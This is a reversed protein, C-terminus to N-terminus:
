DNPVAVGLRVGMRILDALSAASMKRMVQARQEKVTLESTGFGAAIQKNLLGALVGAMVEQERATLSRYRRQLEVLSRRERFAAREREIGGKVAAVLERARFPKTLFEVAGDKIAKVSMPIDGRGTLFVIAPPHEMSQLERQLALGNFDPLFVDLVVCSPGQWGALTELFASASAFCEVDLSESRLLRALSERVSDDDDVVFVREPRDSAPPESPM